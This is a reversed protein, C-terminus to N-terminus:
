PTGPVNPALETDTAPDAPRTAEPPWQSADGDQGDYMRTAESGLWDHM